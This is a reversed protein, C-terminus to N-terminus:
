VIVYRRNSILVYNKKHKSENNGELIDFTNKTSVYASEFKEAVYM